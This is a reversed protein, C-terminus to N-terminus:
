VVASFAVASTVKVTVIVSLPLVPLPPAWLSLAETASVTVGTLSAGTTM